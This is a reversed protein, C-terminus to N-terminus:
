QSRKFLHIGGKFDGVKTYEFERLEDEYLGVNADCLLVYNVDAEGLSERVPAITSNAWLPREVSTTENKRGGKCFIDPSLYYIPINKHVLTHSGWYTSYALGRVDKQMGVFELANLENEYESFDYKFVFFVSLFILFIFIWNVPVRVRNKESRTVVRDLGVGGLVHFFPLVALMFRHEKHPILSFVLFYFGAVLFLYKTQKQGDFSKLLFFLTAFELVLVALYFFPTKTGFYSSGGELLNFRFYNLSSALFSGWTFYDLVGQALVVVLFGFSFIMIKDFRRFWALFVLIAPLFVANPFRFMFSVGLFFGALFVGKKKNGKFGLYLLYVALTSFLM